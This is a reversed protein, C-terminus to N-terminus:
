PANLSTLSPLTQSAIAPPGPLGPGPIVPGPGPPGPPIPPGPPGPPRPPGPKPPPLSLPRGGSPGGPAAAM